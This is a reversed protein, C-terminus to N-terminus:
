PHEYAGIDYASVPLPNGFFDQMGMSTVIGLAALDVGANIAPSEDQLTFSTTPFGFEHYKPDNL